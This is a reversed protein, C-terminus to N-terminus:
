VTILHEYNLAIVCVLAYYYISHKMHCLAPMVCVMFNNVLHHTPPALFQSHQYQLTAIIVQSTNYLLRVEDEM